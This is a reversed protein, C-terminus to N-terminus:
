LELKTHDSFLGRNQNTLYASSPSVRLFSFSGCVGPLIAQLSSHHTPLLKTTLPLALRYSLPDLKFLMIAMDCPSLSLDWSSSFKLHSPSLHHQIPVLLFYRRMLLQLRCNFSLLSYIHVRFCVLGSSSVVHAQPAGQFTFSSWPLLPWWFMAVVVKEPAQTEPFLKEGCGLFEFDDKKKETITIIRLLCTRM